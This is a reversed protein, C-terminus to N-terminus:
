ARRIRWYAVAALMMTALGAILWPTGDFGGCSVSAQGIRLVTVGSSCPRYNLNAFGVVAGVAGAGALLGLRERSEGRRRMVLILLIGIPLTFLGIQSVVLSLCVGILGWALFRFWEATVGKM